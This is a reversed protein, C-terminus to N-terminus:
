DLLGRETLLRKLAPKRKAPRNLAAQFSKWRRDDLVFLRRDVLAQEAAALASELLFGSVNTQRARAAQELIRKQRLTARIDIRESKPSEAVAM